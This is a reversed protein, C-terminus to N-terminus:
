ASQKQAADSKIRKFVPVTRGSWIELRAGCEECAFFGIDKIPLAREQREYSAGCACTMFTPAAKMRLALNVRFPLRFNARQRIDTSMTVAQKPKKAGDNAM